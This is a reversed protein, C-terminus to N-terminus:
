QGHLLRSGKRLNEQWPIVQLNTPVHLGSVKKGKLPIIHDVHWQFGFMETRLKALEYAQEIMWKDDETLWAPVRLLRELRNKTKAANTKGPNLRDWKERAIKRAEPNKIAYGRDQQAKHEKNKAAWAKKSASIREANATRYQANFASICPKCKNGKVPFIGVDRSVSCVYCPSLVREPKPLLAKEAQLRLRRATSRELYKEKHKLYQARAYVKRASLDKIPM